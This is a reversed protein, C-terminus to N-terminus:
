TLRDIIFNKRDYLFAGKLLRYFRIICEMGMQTPLHEQDVSAKDGRAKEKKVGEEKEVAM